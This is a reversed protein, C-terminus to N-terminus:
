LVSKCSMFMYKRDSAKESTLITMINKIRLLLANEDHKIWKWYISAPIALLESDKSACISVNYNTDESFIEFDGVIYMKAFDMFYYVKGLKQYDVGAVDGKLIIYVTDCPEGARIIFEDKKVNKHVAARIVAELVYQFLKNLYDRKSGKVKNIEELFQQKTEMKIGRFVREYYHVRGQMIVVPTEEVYGFVFRGKHGKVTSVPFGEIDTYDITQEIKIGDAFDGLGSGLILAVEPKFDIKKQVSELCTM